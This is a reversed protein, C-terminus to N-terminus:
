ICIIKKNYNKNHKNADAQKPEPSWPLIIAATFLPKNAHPLLYLIVQVPGVDQLPPLTSTVTTSRQGPHGTFPKSNDCSANETIASGLTPLILM